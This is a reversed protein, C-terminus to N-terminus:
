SPGWPRRSVLPIVHRRRDAQWMLAERGDFIDGCRLEAIPGPLGLHEVRYSIAGTSCILLEALEHRGVLMPRVMDARETRHRGARDHIANVCAILEPTCCAGARVYADGNVAVVEVTQRETLVIM